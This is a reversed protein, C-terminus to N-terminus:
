TRFLWVINFNMVQMNMELRYKKNDRQNAVLDERDYQNLDVQFTREKTITCFTGGPLKGSSRKREDTLGDLQVVTVKIMTEQCKDQHIVSKGSWFIM